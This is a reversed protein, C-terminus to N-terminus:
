RRRLNGTETKAMAPHEDRRHEANEDAQIPKPCIEYISVRTRLFLAEGGSGPADCQPIAQERGTEAGVFGFSLASARSPAV